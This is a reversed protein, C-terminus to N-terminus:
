RAANRLSPAFSELEELADRIVALLEAQASQLLFHDAPLGHCSFKGVTHREWAQVDEMPVNEDLLGGVAVIPCTLPVEPTPTYTECLTFDARLVPLFLDMLEAHALVTAPTGGLEGVAAMFEADPLQHVPPRRDPLHPARHGAAVLLLPEAGAEARVRRALEFAILSGMSHGFLVFPQSLLPGLGEVLWDVLRDMRHFPPQAIARDHGPLEVARVEVDLPLREPWDRFVTVSGGAYHFCLLHLRADPRPHPVFCRM